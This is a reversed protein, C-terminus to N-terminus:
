RFATIGIRVSLWVFAGLALVSFLLTGLHAFRWTWRQKSLCAGCHIALACCVLSIGFLVADTGTIRYWGGGGHHSAPMAASQRIISTAGWIFLGIPVLIGLIAISWGSDSDWDLESDDHSTQRFSPPFIM